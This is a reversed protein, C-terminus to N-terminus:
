GLSEFPGFGCSRRTQIWELTKPFMSCMHARMSLLGVPHFVPSSVATHGCEVHLHKRGTETEREALVNHGRGILFVSFVLYMVPYHM